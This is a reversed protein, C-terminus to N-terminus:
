DRLRTRLRFLPRELGHYSIIAAGSAAILWFPFSLWWVDGLGYVSPKTTFIQQWIYLSYSLVGIKCMLPKNLFSFFGSQPLIISLLLLGGMGFGQFTDGLPVTFVGLLLLNRLVYPLIILSCALGMYIMLRNAVLVELQRRNRSLLFACACGIALSDFYNFFSCDSFFPRVFQPSVNLYTIVRSVPAVIIPLSLMIMSTRQKKAAGFVVFLVPWLIYFQEEVALSWLHGSTWNKGGGFGFNTTFTFNNVWAAPTQHYQTVGQLVALTCLFAAYVPLIRLARRAYFHTLNIQGTSDSEKLMLWTILFGSIVFFM